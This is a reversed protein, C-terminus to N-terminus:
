DKAGVTSHLAGFEQTQQKSGRNKQLVQCPFFLTQWSIGETHSDPLKREEEQAKEKEEEKETTGANSRLMWHHWLVFAPSSIPGFLAHEM